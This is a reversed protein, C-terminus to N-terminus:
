AILVANGEAKLKEVIKERVAENLFLTNDHLYSEQIDGSKRVEFAHKIVENYQKGLKLTLSFKYIQEYTFPFQKTQLIILCRVAYLCSKCFEKKATVLEKRKFSLMSAHALGTEFRFEELVDLISIPAPRLKEVIEKGFVTKGMGIIDRFFILEPFLVEFEYEMFKEYEILKLNINSGVIIKEVESAAIGNNRFYLLGCDYKSEQLFDTRARSGYLFISVPNFTEGIKKIIENFKDEM